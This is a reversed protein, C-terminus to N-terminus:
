RCLDLFAKVLLWGDRTRLESEPTVSANMSPLDIGQNVLFASTAEPHTQLSWVPLSNHELGDVTVETSTAMVNFGEPAALVAERHSRLLSRSGASALRSPKLEVPYFGKLKEQDQRVFGVAAGHMHALLQHGFCIGFFPVGREIHPRLWSVLELQWPLQDHVSSASGLVIIGAIKMHGAAARRNALDLTALGCIGPLHYSTRVLSLRSIHNFCDTEPTHAAPDVVIVERDFADSVSVAIM